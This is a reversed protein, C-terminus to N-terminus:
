SKVARACVEVAFREDHQNLEARSFEGAVLGRLEGAATLSNGFAEVSVQDDHFATTLTLRLGERTFRWLEGQRPDCMSAQPVAVLLVGGPKLLRHLEGVLRHPEPIIHLVHTCIVCDFQAGPLNNPKTLDAVITAKPNQNDGHLIEVREVASGGFWNVYLCDEFELCVGRIDARHAALFQAIYYRHIPLGRDMGWRVSLPRTGIAM